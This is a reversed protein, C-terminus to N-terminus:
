QPILPPSVHFSADIANTGCNQVNQLQTATWQRWVCKVVKGKALCCGNTLQLLYVSASEFVNSQQQLIGVLGDCCCKSLWHRSKPTPSDSKRVL